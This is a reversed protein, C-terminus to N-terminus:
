GVQGGRLLLQKMKYPLLETDRGRKTVHEISIQLERALIKIVHPTCFGGQCRGMGARTRFKIGDMTTAGRRVAEIIEGETVHECRCVVHGYKPDEAILEGREKNTLSYFSPPAKRIPNFDLKEELRLGEKRLIELVMEAIAPASATGPSQIGAVNILGKVKRSPAIHFDETYTAARIGAFATIMAEKPINPVFQSFKEWVIEIGRKTTGTAKKYPVEEANPGWISNGDVSLAIGGGKTYPDSKLTAPALNHSYLSSYKSDFIVMEGKRPHITFERAGAMEAIEDAYLGSANVLFKPFITGRDTVVEKIQGNKVIVDTVEADLMLKVGNMVANEALAITALYPSTSGYTPFFLAALAKETIRPELRFVEERDRIIEVPVGHQKALDEVFDLMPLLEEETVIALLGIRKFPFDLEQALRDYMANGRVCLKAKLSGPDVDVGAFGHVWGPNAKSQGWAVDAEKEVVVVELDFRSLERAISAGVIGAGVIVVDVKMG